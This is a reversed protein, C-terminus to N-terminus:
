HRARRAQLAAGGSMLFLSALAMLPGTWNVGGSGSGTEPLQSVPASPTDPGNTPVITPEDDVPAFAVIYPHPGPGTEPHLIEGYPIYGEPTQAEDWWLAWDIGAPFELGCGQIQNNNVTVCTDLVQGDAQNVVSIEFDFVADNYSTCSADTCLRATVGISTTDAPVAAHAAPISALLGASFAFVLFLGRLGLPQARRLGFM